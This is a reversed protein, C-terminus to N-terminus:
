AFSIRAIRYLCRPRAVCLITPDDRFPICVVGTICTGGTMDIRNYLIEFFYALPFCTLQPSHSGPLYAPDYPRMDEM